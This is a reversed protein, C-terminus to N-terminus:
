KREPLGYLKEARRIHHLAKLMAAVHGRMSRAEAIAKDLNDESLIRDFRGDLKGKQRCITEYQRLYLVRLTTNQSM